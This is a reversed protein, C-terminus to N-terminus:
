KDEEQTAIKFRRWTEVPDSSGGVEIVWRGEPRYGLQILRGTVEREAGRMSLADIELVATRENEFVATCTVEINERRLWVEIPSPRGKLINM